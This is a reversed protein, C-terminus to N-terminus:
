KKKGYMKKGIYKKLESSQEKYESKLKAKDGSKLTKILDKHEKVFAKKSMTIM